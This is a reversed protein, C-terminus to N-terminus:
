YMIDVYVSSDSNGLKGVPWLNFALSYRTQDSMNTTIRHYLESPFLFLSNKVTNIHFQHYNYENWEEPMVMLGHNNYDEFELRAGDFDEWYLIGSYYSNRHNHSYSRGRPEVKTGWSTSIKFNTSTMKLVNDKFDYFKNILISKVKPFHNLVSIDETSQVLNNPEASRYKFTKLQNLESIDEELNYLACVKPFLPLILRNNDM